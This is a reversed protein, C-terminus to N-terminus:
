FGTGQPILGVAQHLFLDFGPLHVHRQVAEAANVGKLRAIQLLVLLYHHAQLRVLGHAADHVGVAAEAHYFVGQFGIAKLHRRFQM